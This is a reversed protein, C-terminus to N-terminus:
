RRYLDFPASTRQELPLPDGFPATAQYSSLAAEWVLRYTGAPDSAEFSPFGSTGPLAGVVSLTDAWVEGGEIVIPDSLCAALAPTWVTRWADSEWRELRVGYAGLCNVLFVTGGTSNTFRYEVKASAWGEQVSVLFAASDARILANVPTPPATSSDCGAAISIFAVAALRRFAWSRQPIKHISM